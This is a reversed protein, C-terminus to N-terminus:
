HAAPRLRREREGRRECHRSRQERRRGAVRVLLDRDVVVYFGAELDFDGRSDLVLWDLERVDRSDLQFLVADAGVGEM